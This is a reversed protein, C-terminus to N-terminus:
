EKVTVYRRSVINKFVHTGEDESYMYMYGKLWDGHEAICRRFIASALVQQTYQDGITNNM